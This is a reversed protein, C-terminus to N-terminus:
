HKPNRDCGVEQVLQPHLFLPLSSDPETSAPAHVVCPNSPVSPFCHPGQFEGPDQSAQSSQGFRHSRRIAFNPHLAEPPFGLMAPGQIISNVVRGPDSRQSVPQWCRADFPMCLCRPTTSGTQGHTLFCGVRDARECLAASEARGDSASRSADSSVVVNSM